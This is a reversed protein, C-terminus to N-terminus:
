QKFRYRFGEKTVLKPYKNCARNISRPSKGTCRACEEISPYTNTINGDADIQEVPRSNGHGDTSRQRATGYNLNYAFTVWELNSPLNNRKNEDKHNVVAGEFWGDVFARAVLQHVRCIKYTSHNALNVMCYGRGDIAQSLVKGRYFYTSLSGWRNTVEICRDLSRVRGLNSVQYIGEYGEIDKWIEETKTEM